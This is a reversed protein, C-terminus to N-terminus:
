IHGHNIVRFAEYTACLQSICKEYRSVVVCLARVSPNAHLSLWCCILAEFDAPSKKHKLFLKMHSKVGVLSGHSLHTILLHM